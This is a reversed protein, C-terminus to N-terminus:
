IGGDIKIVARNIFDSEIICKVANSINSISGLQRSPIDKIRDKKVKAPLENWLKSKFYGLSLINSTINFRGYEKALTSSFGYLYSKSASYIATGIEGEIVKSSSFHIIRGFNNNIMIPLFFKVLNIHGSINIKYSQLLNNNSVNVLLKNEKIVSFNLLIIKKNNLKHKKMINELENPYNLDFKELKVNLGKLNKPKKNHYTAIIKFKNKSLINLVQEGIVSASGVAFIIM